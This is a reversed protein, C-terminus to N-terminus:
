KGRQPRIWGRRLGEKILLRQTDTLPTKVIFTDPKGGLRHLERLHVEIAQRAKKKEDQEM